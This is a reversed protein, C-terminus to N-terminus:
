ISNSNSKIKWISLLKLALVIEKIRDKVGIEYKQKKKHKELKASRDDTQKM